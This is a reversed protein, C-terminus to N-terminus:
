ESDGKKMSFPLFRAIFRIWAPTQGGESWKHLSAFVSSGIASSFFAIIPAFGGLNGTTICLLGTLYGLIFSGIGFWFRTQLPIAVSVALMFALGGASAMALNQDYILAASAVGVGAATGAIVEASM